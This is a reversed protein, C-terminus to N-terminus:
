RHRRSQLFARDSDNPSCQLARDFADRSEAARGLRALMEARTSWYLHWREVQQQDLEDLLALATAAGEAAAVAVVRNVRVVPTPTYRELTRYLSAIQSWDTDAFTPALGHLCAIAAQAQFPGPRRLLVARDLLM